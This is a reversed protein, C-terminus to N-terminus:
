LSDIAKEIQINRWKLCFRDLDPFKYTKGYYEIYDGLRYLVLVIIGLNNRITISYAIDGCCKHHSIDVLENFEITYITDDAVHYGVKHM